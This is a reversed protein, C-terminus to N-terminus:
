KCTSCCFGPLCKKEKKGGKIRVYTCVYICAHMCAYKCVMCMFLAHAHYDRDHYKSKLFLSSLVYIFVFLLAGLIAATTLIIGACIPQLDSGYRSPRTWPHQSSDQAHRRSQRSTHRTGGCSRAATTSSLTGSGACAWTLEMGECRHICVRTHKHM